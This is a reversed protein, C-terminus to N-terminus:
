PETVVNRTTTLSTPLGIAGAFSLPVRTTVSVSSPTPRRVVMGDSFAGPVASRAAHAVQDPNDNVAMSRAAATTARGAWIFAVGTVAIQWCLVAVLIAMPIAAANELAVAGAEKRRRRGTARGKTKAPIDLPRELGLERRLNGMLRWWGVETVARPDRENQSPELLRTSLPVVTDTVAATTLKAVASAPFISSKDAKNVLVKFSAEERVALASWAIMRRRMARVSLVDSTTVVLVEDAIEVIAAQGPSVHGGGDVIVIDYERRLIEIIARLAEPTVLETERVDAPALLVNIGTEHTIVADIVTQPSLDSAVKAVDAISVSQRVDLMAAIDGKEVDVDVLCVQHEPHSVVHDQALHTAITTTGTGGKAGVVAVVRGRTRATASAGDQFKRMHDVWELAIELRSSVDEFSFPYAIIGRAGAEFAKIVTASTRSGSIELVGLDPRQGCIDRVIEGLPEPGIDQHVLVIDPALRRSLDVVEITSRAVGKVTVDDIEDLISTIDARMNQDNIALLVDTM